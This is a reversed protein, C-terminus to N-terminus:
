SLDVLLADAPASQEAVVVSSQTQQQQQFVRGLNKLYLTMSPLIDNDILNLNAVDDIKEQTHKLVTANCQKIKAARDLYRNFQAIGARCQEVTTSKYVSPVVTTNVHKSYEEWLQALDRSLLALCQVALHSESYEQAFSYFKVEVDIICDILTKISTSQQQQQKYSLLAKTKLYHLYKSKIEDQPTLQKNKKKLQNIEQQCQRGFERAFQPVLLLLKHMVILAKWMVNLSTKQGGEVIRQILLKICLKTLFLSKDEKLYCIMKNIHKPKPLWKDKCTAKKTRKELKSWVYSEAKTPQYDATAASSM